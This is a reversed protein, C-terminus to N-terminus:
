GHPRGPPPPPAATLPAPGPEPVRVMATVIAQLMRGHEDVRGTLVDVKRSTLMVGIAAVLASLAGVTSMVDAYSWGVNWRYWASLRKGTGACGKTRKAPIAWPRADEGDRGPRLRGGPFRSRGTPRRGGRWVRTLRTPPTM